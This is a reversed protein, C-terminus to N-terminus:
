KERLYKEVNEKMWDAVTRGEAKLKEQLKLGMERDINARIEKYKNKKWENEKQYNRSM